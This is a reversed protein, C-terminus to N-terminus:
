PQDREGNPCSKQSSYVPLQQLHIKIYFIFIKSPFYYLQSLIAMNYQIIHMVGSSVASAGRQMEKRLLKGLGDSELKKMAKVAREKNGRNAYKKARLMASLDLLKGPQLITFAAASVV